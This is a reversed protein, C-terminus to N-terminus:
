KMSLISSTNDALAVAIAVLGIAVLGIAVLGIAVQAWRLV